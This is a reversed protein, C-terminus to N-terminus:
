LINKNWYFQKKDPIKWNKGYKKELYLKPNSPSLFNKGYIKIPVLKRLDEIPFTIGWEKKYQIDSEGLWFEKNGLNKKKYIEIDVITFPYLVQLRAFTNYPEGRITIAGSKIFLPILDLLRTLQDEKIGLDVDRPRGALSSQRVAGLLAGGNLFFDIKKLKLIKSFKILIYLAYIHASPLRIYLPYKFRLYFIILGFFLHSRTINMINKTKEKYFEFKKPFLKSLISLFLQQLKGQIFNKPKGYLNKFESM